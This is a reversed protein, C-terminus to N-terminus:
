TYGTQLSDWGKSTLKMRPLIPFILLSILFIVCALGMSRRIYGAPLPNLSIEKASTELEGELFLCSSSVAAIIIFAFILFILYAEVTLASSLILEGFGFGMRWGRTRRSNPVLWTISHILPAGYAAMVIPHYRYHIGAYIAAVLITALIGFAWKVSFRAKVVQSVVFIALIIAWFEIQVEDTTALAILAISDTIWTLRTSWQKANM